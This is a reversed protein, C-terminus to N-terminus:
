SESRIGYPSRQTNYQYPSTQQVRGQWELENSPRFCLGVILRPTFRRTCAVLFDSVGVWNCSFKCVFLLIM